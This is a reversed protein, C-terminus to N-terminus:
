RSVAPRGSSPPAPTLQPGSVPAVSHTPMEPIAIGWKKLLTSEAASRTEPDSDPACYHKLLNIIVPRVAPSFQDVKYEGLSLILEHRVSVDRPLLYMKRSLLGSSPETMGLWKAEARQVPTAVGLWGAIVDPRVDLLRLYHILLRRATNERKM